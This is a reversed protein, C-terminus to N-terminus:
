FIHLLSTHGANRDLMIISPPCEMQSSTSLVSLICAEMMIELPGLFGEARRSNTVQRAEAWGNLFVRDLVYSLLFAEFNMSSHSNIPPYADDHM